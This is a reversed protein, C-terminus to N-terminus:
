VHPADTNGGKGSVPGDYLLRTSGAGHHPELWVQAVDHGAKADYTLYTVVKGEWSQAETRLGSSKHGLRSEAKRAGQVVGRFHAM